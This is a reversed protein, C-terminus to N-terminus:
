LFEEQVWLSVSGGNVRFVGHGQEDIIVIDKRNGLFDGFRLHKFDEGLFINKEAEAGNTMIVICGPQNENGSRVFAICNNDDFYETQAGHAFKQRAQILPELEPIIPMDIQYVEGDDGEDQYSAGYLDPHFICPVGQERLLILAYALPKFWPEVPSELSQLPQTDHNAVLTVANMPNTDVLTNAFIQALDFSDGSKSAQHFKHQLAVDFLMLKGEVQELYKQLKGIDPSWYEAIVLLDHQAHDRVHDIWEKYFWAPIHKVADLRFGNCPLSDLLWRGWYKLEEVVAPNRFEINAGMLYDFNGLEDDVQDNWGDNGYDNIIKFIGNASPDEISDIGSFCTQDWIFQSYQGSRAPFTFRTYAQADIIEDAIQNRNNEEVNSVRVPEKEDAGMKHNFVVDYLVQIECEQLREVAAQLAERDGYKTARNGKQEFEGLDFLDYTDYGVSYGGSAGKYAPPLWVITIGIERLQSAKDSVEQWLQGGGPSYWHFFQILTPNKM